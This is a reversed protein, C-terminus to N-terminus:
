KTLNGGNNLIKEDIFKYLEKVDNTIPFPISAKIQPLYGEIRSDLCCVIGTDKDSRILRGIGQTLKMVMKPIHITSNKDVYNRSLYQNVADYTEFPLQTIIVNSLSEGKIDIGEWFAGTALLCSNVNSAFQNKIDSSNSDTQILIEFPFNEKKLSDYVSKMTKKSTFLILAKGNTSRILESIKAALDTIYKDDKSPKPLSTTYYFLSNEKYNYPSDFTRGREITKGTLSDLYLENYPIGYNNIADMTGSLLVNPIAAGFIKGIDEKIEKPTYKISIRNNSYYSAWYINKSNDGLSLDYLVNYIRDLEDLLNKSINAGFRSEYQKIEERLKKLEKIVVNLHNKVSDTVRFGIRGGDTVKYAGQNGLKKEASKFNERANEMVYYFLQKLDLFLKSNDRMGSNLGIIDNKSYRHSILTSITRILEKISKLDLEKESIGRINEALKHAEDYVAFNVGEVLSTNRTLHYVMNAHNTVIINSSEIEQNHLYYPCSGNKSYSCNSCLGRNKLKVQEWVKESLKKLDEIDSSKTRRIERKLGNLIEKVEDSIGYMGILEDIRKVCAYNNVGKAIGYTVNIGLMHSVREIDGILQKQLAITSTSIIVKNFKRVNKFSYFIPILYGFTKGIGVGAQLLLIKNDRIARMIDLSLDHQSERYTVTNISYDDKPHNSLDEFFSNTERLAQWKEQLQRDEAWISSM